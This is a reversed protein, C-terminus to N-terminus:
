INWIVVSDYLTSARDSQSVGVGQGTWSKGPATIELVRNLSSSEYITNSYYYSENNGYQTNYFIPQKTAADTRFNGTSLNDTYPLYQRPERDYPDYFNTSIIDALDRTAQKAVTQVPRGLGDIYITMQKVDYVGTQADATVQDTIGPKTFIRTRVYNMNNPDLGAPYAPMAILTQSGAAAGTTTDPTFTSTNVVKVRVSNSAVTNMGCVALRRFWTTKTISSVTQSALNTWTYEDPSSQFQYTYSSCGGGTAVQVSSLTVSGGSAVTPSNITILGGNLPPIAILTNTYATFTLSTVRLRYYATAATGKPTYSLSTEGSINTWTTGNTSQQWQYSYTGNGGTAPFSTYSFAGYFNVLLTDPYINGLQLAPYVTFVAPSTYVTVGNSTVARRFRTNVTLQGPTYSQSTVGGITNWTTGDTSSQWQYTYTGNGGTPVSGTLLGPSNAYVINGSSPAITGAVLQPYVIITASNSTVAVTNSTTIVHYYITDTLNGPTYNQATAGSINTWTSNNPSSQWQYTYTGNGGTRTNTLLGPSTNYNISASAPTIATTVQPYVTVTAAASNVSVGNSTSVLRYYKTVTMVGPSYTLSTAASVNTWTSNDPSSQWQYTYTGNGGTAAAATLTSSSTNYNLTQTAPTITGSVLQPYVTITSTNTYATAGNSTTMRRYYTLSTLAGPTYNQTTVGTSAWTSNNASSQWQYTYTGNGGTSVTGSLAGPSTSYNITLATPSITGASIQPYVTVLVSASYVTESGCTTKQRFYTNATLAVPTYNQTTAGSIDTFTSNDTSQQWQYAYSGIGGTAGSSTLLTPVTNYNITQSAPSITGTALHASITVTAVPSYGNAGGTTSTMEVQYYQNASVATPSYSIATAGSIYYFDTGNTSLMWKYTYGSVDPGVLSITAPTAGSFVTQSTPSISGITFFRTTTSDGSISFVSQCIMCLMAMLLFVKSKAIHFINNQKHM